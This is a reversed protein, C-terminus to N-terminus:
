NIRINYVDSKNRLINEIFFGGEEPIDEFLNFSNCNSPLGSFILSFTLKSDAPIPRWIPFFPINYAFLLKSKHISNCDCLYTTKWIRVASPYFLTNYTCNVIVQKSESVKNRVSESLDSDIKFDPENFKFKLLENKEM